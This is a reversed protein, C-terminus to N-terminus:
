LPNEARTTIIMIHVEDLHRAAGYGTLHNLLQEGIQVRGHPVLKGGGDALLERVKGKM